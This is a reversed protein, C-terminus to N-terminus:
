QKNNVTYYVGRSPKGQAKIKENACMKRLLRTAQDGSLGCLEIV